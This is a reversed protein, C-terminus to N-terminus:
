QKKKKKKSVKTTSLIGRGKKYSRSNHWLDEFGRGAKQPIAAAHCHLVVVNRASQGTLRCCKHVFTRHRTPWWSYPLIVIFILSNGNHTHTDTHEFIHTTLLP